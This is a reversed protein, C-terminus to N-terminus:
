EGESIEKWSDEELRWVQPAAITECWDKPHALLATYVNGTCCRAAPLLVNLFRDSSTVVPGLFLKNAAAGLVLKNFDFIAQQSDAAFESEIQWLAQKVFCITKGGYALCQDVRCVAVDYLLENLGFSRRNGAHYKSFVRIRPDASFADRFCQAVSEVWAISRARNLLYAAAQSSESKACALSLANQLLPVLQIQINM